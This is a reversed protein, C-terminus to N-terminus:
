RLNLGHGLVQGEVVDVDVVQVDEDAAVEVDGEFVALDGVIEPDPCREGSELAEDVGPRSDPDAGM